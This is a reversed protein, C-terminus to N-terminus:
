RADVFPTGRRYLGLRGAIQDALEKSGDAAAAQGAREPAAVAADIRGAAADAAAVTDLVVPHQGGSLRNAEETLRLAQEGDRLRPDRCTALKWALNNM